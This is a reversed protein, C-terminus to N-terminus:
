IGFLTKLDDTCKDIVQQAHAKSKFWFLQGANDSKWAIVDTGWNYNSDIRFHLFYKYEERDRWDPVFGLGNDRIYTDIRAKAKLKEVQALAESETRYINGISQIDIDVRHNSWISEEVSGDYYIYFFDDDERPWEKANGKEFAEFAAWRESSIETVTGEIKLTTM